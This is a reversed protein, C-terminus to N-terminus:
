DNLATNIINQIKVMNVQGIQTKKWQEFKVKLENALSREMHKSDMLQTFYHLELLKGIMESTASIPSSVVYMQYAALPSIGNKSEYKKCYESVRETYDDYPNDIWDQLVLGMWKMDQGYKSANVKIIHKNAQIYSATRERTKAYQKAFAIEHPKLEKKKKRYAMRKSKSYNDVKGTRIPDLLRFIEDESKNSLSVIDSSTIAIEGLLFKDTTNKGIADRVIDFKTKFSNGKDNRRSNLYNKQIIPANRRSLQNQDIWGLVDEISDFDLRKVEYPLNHKNAIDLRYRGDILIDDWLILPNLIGFRLCSKELNSFEEGSLRPLYNKIRQDQKIM